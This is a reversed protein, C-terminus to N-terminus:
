DGANPVSADPNPTADPGYPSGYNGMRNAHLQWGYSNPADNNYDYGQAMAASTLGVLAAATLLIRKM